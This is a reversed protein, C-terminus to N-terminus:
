PQDLSKISSGLNKVMEIYEILSDNYGIYEYKGDIISFVYLSYQINEDNDERGCVLFLNQTYGTSLGYQKLVLQDKSNIECSHSVYLRDSITNYTDLITKAQETYSEVNFNVCDEM